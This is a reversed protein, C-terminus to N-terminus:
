NTGPGSLAMSRTRRDILDAAEKQRRAIEKAYEVNAAIAAKVAMQNFTLMRQLAAYHDTVASLEKQARDRESAVQTKEKEVLSEQLSVERSAGDLYQFDRHAAELRDAYLMRDKECARFIALYDILPRLTKGAADPVGKLVLWKQDDTLGKFDQADKLVDASVFKRLDDPVSIFAEHEDNPMIEYLVWPTTSGAVNKSLATVLQTTSVLGVQKEDIPKVRFEGLYKGPSQDDGDEFVYVLMKDTFGGEETSVAIETLGKSDEAVKKKTCNTWIRGRNALVRGLDIRLQEVGVTGDDRPHKYDATKLSLNDARKEELKKEFKVVQESWYKYTKVTRAAAHFFFLATIGILGVLIKNWISM